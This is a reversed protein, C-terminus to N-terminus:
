LLPAPQICLALRKRECQGRCMNKGIFTTFNKLIGKLVGVVKHFM